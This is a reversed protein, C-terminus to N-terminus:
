DILIGWYGLSGEAFLNICGWVLTEGPRVPNGAATM